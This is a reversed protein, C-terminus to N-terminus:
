SRTLIIKRVLNITIFNDSPDLLLSEIETYPFEFLISKDDPKVLLIGEAHVGIVIQNGYSWYGAFVLNFIFLYVVTLEFPVVTNTYYHSRLPPTKLVIIHVTHDTM